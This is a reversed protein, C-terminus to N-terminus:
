NEEEEIEIVERVNKCYCRGEKFNYFRLSNELCKEKCLELTFEGQPITTNSEQSQNFYNNTEINEKVAGWIGLGVAIIVAFTALNIIISSLQKRPKKKVKKKM